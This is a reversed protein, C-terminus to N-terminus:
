HNSSAHTRTSRYLVPMTHLSSIHPYALMTCVELENQGRMCVRMCVCAYVCACVCARVCVRVHVCVRVCVCMSACECECECM